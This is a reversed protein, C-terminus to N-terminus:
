GPGEDPGPDAGESVAALRPVYHDWGMRHIAVEDPPLGTHTLRVRTNAGEPLLEVEVTSSGPPVGPHDVWGWSFVVRRHPELAVFQGRATMGNPMLLRFIGGVVGDVKADSGQWRAWLASQTFHEFIRAPPAAIVREVVIPEASM